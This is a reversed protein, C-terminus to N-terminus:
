LACRQFLAPQKKRTHKLQWLWAVDIHSHGVTHVTVPSTWSIRSVEKKWVELAKESIWLPM